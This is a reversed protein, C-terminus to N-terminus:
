CSQWCIPIHWFTRSFYFPFINPNTESPLLPLISWKPWLVLLIGSVVVVVSLLMSLCGWRPLMLSFFLGYVIGKMLLLLVFISLQYIVRCSRLLLVSSLFWLFSHFNSWFVSFSVESYIYIRQLFVAAFHSVWVTRSRESRAPLLIHIQPVSLYDLRLRKWVFCSCCSLVVVITCLAWLLVLLLAWIQQLMLLVLWGVSFSWHPFRFSLLILSASVFLMLSYLLLIFLIYLLLLLISFISIDGSSFFIFCFNGFIKLLCPFITPCVIRISNLSPELAACRFPLLTGNCSWFATSASIFFRIFALCMSRTSLIDSSINICGTTIVTLFSRLTLIANSALDSLSAMIFFIGFALNPCDLPFSLPITFAFLFTFYM